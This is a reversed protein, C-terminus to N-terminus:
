TIVTKLGNELYSFGNIMGAYEKGCSEWAIPFIDDQKLRLMGYIWNIFERNPPTVGYWTEFGTYKVFLTHRDFDPPDEYLFGDLILGSRLTYLTYILRVANANYDPHSLPVLSTNRNLEGNPESFFMWYPSKLFDARTIDEFKKVPAM